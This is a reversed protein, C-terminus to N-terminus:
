EVTGSASGTPGEKPKLVFERASSIAQYVVRKEDMTMEKPQKRFLGFTTMQVEPRDFFANIQSDPVTIVNDQRLFDEGSERNRRRTVSKRRSKEVARKERCKVAVKWLREVDFQLANAIAAVTYYPPPSKKDSELGCIYADSVGVSDAVQKQTLRLRQRQTKLTEGFSRM